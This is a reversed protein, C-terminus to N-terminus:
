SPQDDKTEPRDWGDPFEVTWGEPYLEDFKRKTHYGGADHRVWWESSSVGSAVRAGHDNWVEYIWNPSGSGPSIDVVKCTLRENM